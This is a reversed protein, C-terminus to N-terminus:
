PGRVRGLVNCADVERGIGDPCEMRHEGEGEGKSIPVRRRSTEVDVRKERILPKIKSPLFRVWSRGRRGLARPGAREQKRLWCSALIM